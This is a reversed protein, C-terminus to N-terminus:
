VFPAFAAHFVNTQVYMFVVGDGARYACASLCNHAGFHPRVGCSKLLQVFSHVSPLVHHHHFRAGVGVDYVAEEDLQAHLRMHDVSAAELHYGVGIFLGVALVCFPDTAAETQPLVVLDLQGHGVKRRFPFRLQLVEAPVLLLKGVLETILHPPYTRVHV